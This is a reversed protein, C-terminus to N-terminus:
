SALEWRERWEDTVYNVILSRRIGAIPRKVFGHWTDTGPIFIMGLNPGFPSSAVRNQNEDFLDTGLGAMEPEKSLYVTMTFLKVSIDKHPELWFGDTDQAYEIRLHSGSLDVGCVENIKAITKPDTLCDVVERCVPFRECSEANFYFRTKNNGERTGPFDDILPVSVPLSLIEECADAAIVDSLLWHRFPIDEARANDLCRLFAETSPNAKSM